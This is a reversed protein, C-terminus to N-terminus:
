KKNVTVYVAFNCLKSDEESVFFMNMRRLFYRNLLSFRETVTIIGLLITYFM